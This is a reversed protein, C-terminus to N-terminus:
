FQKLIDHHGVDVLIIMKGGEYYWIIRIDMSVSCEYLDATGQIRKTRLSPHTPNEALLKLKSKLQDKEQATLAEFHKQFRRTFTVQYPM